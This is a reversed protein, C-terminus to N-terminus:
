GVNTQEPFVVSTKLERYIDALQRNDPPPPMLQLSHEVIKEFRVNPSIFIIEEVLPDFEELRHTKSGVQALPKCGKAKMQVFIERAEVIEAISNSDWVIHQHQLTKIPEKLRRNLTRHCKDHGNYRNKIVYRMEEKASLSHIDFSVKQKLFFATSTCDDIHILQLVDDRLLNRSLLAEHLCRVFIPGLQLIKPYAPDDLSTVSIGAMENDSPKRTSECWLSIGRLRWTEVRQAPIDMANIKLTTFARRFPDTGSLILKM